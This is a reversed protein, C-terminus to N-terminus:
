YEIEVDKGEDMAEDYLDLFEDYTIEEEEYHWQFGQDDYYDFQVYWEADETVRFHIDEWDSVPIDQWDDQAL